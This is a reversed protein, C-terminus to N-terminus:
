AAELAESVTKAAWGPLELDRVTAPYGPWQGTSMCHVYLQLLKRVEKSGYASLDSGCRYYANAFPRRKEQALWLFSPPESTGFVSMFGEPYLASQIYMDWNWASRAFEAPSADDTTKLDAILGNPFMACPAVLIDPRIKLNVGTEPDVWFMSVETQAGCKDFLVRTVPHAHAAAATGKAVDLDSALLPEKGTAIIQAWLEKGEKTRRDLGEPLVIFQEDFLHPELMATHVMTGIKMPQTQIRPERKPDLYRSWYHLPTQALLKLGSSGIAPTAHHQDNTMDPFVGSLHNDNM